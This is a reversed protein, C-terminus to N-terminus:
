KIFESEFYILSLSDSFVDIAFLRNNISDISIFQIFKDELIIKRVPNANRDYVHIETSYTVGKMEYEDRIKIMDSYSLGLYVAYIFHDSVKVDKYYLIRDMESQDMPNIRKNFRTITQLNGDFDYILIQPFWKTAAIISNTKKDVVFEGRYLSSIERLNIKRELKPIFPTFRATENRTNVFFMLGQHAGGMGVITSDNLFTARQSLIVEPILIYELDYEVVSGNLLDTINLGVLRKKSWDFLILRQITSDDIIQVFNQIVQSHEMPGQGIQGYGGLYSYDNLSFLKFMNDHLGPEYIILFTDIISIFEPNLIFQNVQHLPNPRLSIIENFASHEIASELYSHDHSDQKSCAVLMLIAFVFVYKIFNM